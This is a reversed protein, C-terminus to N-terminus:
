RTGLASCTQLRGWVVFQGVVRASSNKVAPLGPPAPCKAVFGGEEAPQFLVTYRHERSMGDAKIISHGVCNTPPSFTEEFAEPNWLSFGTGSEKLLKSGRAPM